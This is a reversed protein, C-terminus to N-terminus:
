WRGAHCSARAILEQAEAHYPRSGDRVIPCVDVLTMGLRLESCRPLLYPPSNVYEQFTCNGPQGLRTCGCVEDGKKFKSSAESGVEVVVGAADCGLVIPFSQVLMGYAQM